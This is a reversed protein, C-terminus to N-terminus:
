IRQFYRNSALLLASFSCLPQVSHGPQGGEVSAQCTYVPGSESTHRQRTVSVHSTLQAAPRFTAKM